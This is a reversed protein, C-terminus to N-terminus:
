SGAPMPGRTGNVGSAAPSPPAGNGNVAHRANVLLNVLAIRLREPDTTLAGLAPDLECAIAPARRRVGAGGDGVRPVARQRQGGLLEFRIPRAFDLVENVLRNLRAVEGDIDAAAERVAGASADPQRLSHLAAKIIM